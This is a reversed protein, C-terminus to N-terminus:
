ISLYINIGIWFRHRPNDKIFSDLRYDLGLELKNTSTLTYGIFGAGRIELDYEGGYLVNLYENNLKLFLEKPDLSQGNLPIEVSARYRLRFETYNNKEYTQDASFRHAVRFSYYRKITSIQQISRNIIGVNTVRILHGIAITTNIGTKKAAALSLDTLLYDYNFDNKFLSQRSETKFNVSWDKPLKKNINLSPLIGFEFSNQAINPLPILFLVLFLIRHSKM